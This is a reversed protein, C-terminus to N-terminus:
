AFGLRKLLIGIEQQEAATAPAGDAKLTEIINKYATQILPFSNRDVGLHFGTLDIKPNDNARKGIASNMWGIALETYAEPRKLLALEGQLMQIQQTLAAESEQLTAVSGLLEAQAAITTNATALNAESLEFAAQLEVKTMTM